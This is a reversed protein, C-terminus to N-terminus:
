RPIPKKRTPSYNEKAEVYQDFSDYYDLHDEAINLLVSIRPRFEKIYELQFSSIEIVVVDNKRLNEVEGIFSNGINGCTVHDIGAKKLLLDTLSTVTTKGNTGTIAIINKSPSLRYALEIESLVPVRNKEAWAIPFAKLPVGPSPIVLYSGALFDPTHRGTEVRIGSKELKKRKREIEPSDSLETVRVDAGLNKLVRATDYGTEGIGIVAIKKNKLKVINQKPFLRSAHTTHNEVVKLLLPFCM